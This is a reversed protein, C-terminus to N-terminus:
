GLQQIFNLSQLPKDIIHRLYGLLLGEAAMLTKGNVKCAPREQWSLQLLQM